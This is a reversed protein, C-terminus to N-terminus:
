PVTGDLACRHVSKLRALPLGGDSPRRALKGLQESFPEIPVASRPELLRQFEDIVVLGGKRLVTRLGTALNPAAAVEEALENTAGDQLAEIVSALLERELDIPQTPVDIHVAVKQEQRARAVLPAVVRETKGVGSFGTLVAARRGEDRWAKWLGEAVVQRREGDLGPVSFM